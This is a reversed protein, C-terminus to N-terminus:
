DAFEYSYTVATVLDNNIRLILKFDDGPALLDTPFLEEAAVTKVEKFVL